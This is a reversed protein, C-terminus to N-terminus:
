FGRCAEILDLSMEIGESTGSGRSMTGYDNRGEHGHQTERGREGGAEFWRLRGM